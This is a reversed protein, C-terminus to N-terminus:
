GQESSKEYRWIFAPPINLLAVGLMKEQLGLVCPRFPSSPRYAFQLIQGRPSLLPLLTQVFTCRNSVPMNFFPVSSVVTSIKGQIEVQLVEALPRSTIIDYHLVCAKPFHQQLFAVFTHDREVLILKDEPIGQRLLQRTFSGTGVGLELVYENEARKVHACMARVLWRSSPAFAGILKPTKLLRKFFLLRGSYNSQQASM